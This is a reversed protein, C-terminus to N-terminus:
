LINKILNHTETNLEIEFIFSYKPMYEYLIKKNPPKLNKM